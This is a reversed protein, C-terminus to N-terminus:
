LDSNVLTQKIYKKNLTEDSLVNRQEFRFFIMKMSPFSIFFIMEPDQM